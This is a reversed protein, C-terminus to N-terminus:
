LSTGFFRLSAAGARTNADGTMGIGRVIAQLGDPHVSVILNPIIHENLIGQTLKEPGLRQMAAFIGTSGAFNGAGSIKVSSTSAPKNTNFLDLRAM